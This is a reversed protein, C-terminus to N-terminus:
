RAVHSRAGADREHCGHQVPARLYMLVYQRVVHLAAARHVSTRQIMQRVYKGRSSAIGRMGGNLRMRHQILLQLPLGVHKGKHVIEPGHCDDANAHDRQHKYHLASFRLGFLDADM